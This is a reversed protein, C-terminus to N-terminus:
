RSRLSFVDERPLSKIAKDALSKQLLKEKIRAVAFAQAAIFSDEIYIFNHQKWSFRSNTFLVNLTEIVLEYDGDCLELLREAVVLSRRYLSSKKPIALSVKATTRNKNAQDTALKVFHDLVSVSPSGINTRYWRGKYTSLEVQCHPCRGGTRRVVDQKCKPCLM